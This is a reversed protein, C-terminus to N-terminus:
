ILLLKLDGRDRTLIKQGPWSLKVDNSNVIKWILEELKDSQLNNKEIM